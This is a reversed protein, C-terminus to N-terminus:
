GPRRGAGRDGPVDLEGVWALHRPPRDVRKACREAGQSLSRREGAIQASTRGGPGGHERMLDVRGRARSQGACSDARVGDVLEEPREEGPDEEFGVECCRPPEEVDYEAGEHVPRRGNRGLAHLLDGQLQGAVKGITDNLRCRGTRSTCGPRTTVSSPSRLASATM